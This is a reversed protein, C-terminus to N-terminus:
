YINSPIENTGFTPFSSRPTTSVQLASVGLYCLGFGMGRPVQGTIWGFGWSLGMVAVGLGFLVGGSIWFPEDKEKGSHLATSTRAVFM